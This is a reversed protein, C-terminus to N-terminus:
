GLRNPRQSRLSRASSTAHPSIYKWPTLVRLTRATSSSIHPSSTLEAVTLRPWPGRDFADRAAGVATDVDADSAHPVTAVVQETRPSVVEITGTAAGTVWRGGLYLRYYSRVTM